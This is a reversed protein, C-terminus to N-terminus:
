EPVRDDKKTKRAPRRGATDRTLQLVNVKPGLADTISRGDTDPAAQLEPRKGVWGPNSGDVLQRPVPMGRYLAARGPDIINDLAPWPEEGWAKDFQAFLRGPVYLKLRFDKQLMFWDKVQGPARHFGKLLSQQNLKGIDDALSGIVTDIGLAPVRLELADTARRDARMEYYEYLINRYATILEVQAEERQFMIHGIDPDIVQVVHCGGGAAAYSRTWCDANRRLNKRGPFGFVTVNHEGNPRTLSPHPILDNDVDEMNVAETVMVNPHWDDWIDGASEYRVLSCKAQFMDTGIDRGRPHNVHISSMKLKKIRSEDAWAYFGRRAGVLAAAAASLGV